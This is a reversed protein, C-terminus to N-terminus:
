WITFSETIETLCSQTSELASLKGSGKGCVLTHAPPAARDVAGNLHFHGLGWHKCASGNHRYKGLQLSVGLQKHMESRIVKELRHLDTLKQSMAMVAVELKSSLMDRVM